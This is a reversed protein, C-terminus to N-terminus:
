KILDCLLERIRLPSDFRAARGQSRDLSAAFLDRVKNRAGDSQWIKPMRIGWAGELVMLAHSLGEGGISRAQLPTGVQQVRRGATYHLMMANASHWVATVM